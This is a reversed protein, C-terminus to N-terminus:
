LQLVVGPLDQIAARLAGEAREHPLTIWFTFSTFAGRRNTQHARDADPQTGLHAEILALIRAPDLEAGRGIVKLPVRQPFIPDAFLEPAM